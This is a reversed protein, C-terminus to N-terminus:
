SQTQPPTKVRFATAADQTQLGLPLVQLCVLSLVLSSLQNFLFSVYQVSMLYEVFTWIFSLIFGCWMNNLLSATDVRM